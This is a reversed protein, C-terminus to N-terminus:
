AVRGAFVTTELWSRMMTDPVSPSMSFNAASSYAVSLEGRADRTLSGNPLNVFNHIPRLMVGMFVTM